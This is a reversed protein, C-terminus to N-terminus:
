RPYCAVDSEGSMAQSFRERASFLLVLLAEVSLGLVNATDAYSLREVSALLLVAREEESLSSLVSLANQEQRSDIQPVRVINRAKGITSARGDVGERLRKMVLRHTITLGEILADKKARRRGQLGITCLTEHVVDDAAITDGLLVLAYRRLRATVLPPLTAM